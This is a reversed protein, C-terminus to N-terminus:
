GANECGNARSTSDDVALTFQFRAGAAPVAVRGPAILSPAERRRLLNVLTEGFRFV